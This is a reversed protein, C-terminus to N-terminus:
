NRAQLRGLGGDVALVQGTVWSQEGDLLWCIASAGDAPEGLRGLPHLAASANAVGDNQTLSRTLDTRTLGQAAMWSQLRGLSRAEHEVSRAGSFRLVVFRWAPIERVPAAGDAPRPVAGPKMAAPMVFAMTRNSANESILVPTTMAIKQHEENDGTIFRLLRNFSGGGDLGGGAMATEVVVLAPYDRVEFKGGSRVVEYPTSEYGSRTARCGVLLGAM